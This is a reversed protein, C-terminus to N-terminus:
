VKLDRSIYFIYTARFLIAIIVASLIVYVPDFGQAYMLNKADFYKFPTFYKLNEIRSNLDIAISLIFTFLLIGTALSPATKPHKSKAAIATGISLFILQLILMGIMLRTIDGIVAEGKSYEQVM